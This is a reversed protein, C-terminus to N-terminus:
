QYQLAPIRPRRQAFEETVGGEWRYTAATPVLMGCRDLDAENRQMVPRRCVKGIEALVEDPRSFLSYYCSVLDVPQAPDIPPLPKLM